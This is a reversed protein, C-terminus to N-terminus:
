TEGLSHMMLTIATQVTKTHYCQGILKSGRPVQELSFKHRVDAMLGAVREASCVTGVDGM